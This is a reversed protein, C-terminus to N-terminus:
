ETKNYGGSTSKSAMETNEETDEFSHVGKATKKRYYCFAGVAILVFVVVFIAMYMVFEGTSEAGLPLAAVIGTPSPTPAGTPTATPYLWDLNCTANMTHHIMKKLCDTETLDNDADPDTCACM